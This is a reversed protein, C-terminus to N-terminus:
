RVSRPRIQRQRLPTRKKAYHQNHFHISNFFLFAFHPILVSFDFDGLTKSPFVRLLAFDPLAPADRAAGLGWSLGVLVFCIRVSVTDIAECGASM